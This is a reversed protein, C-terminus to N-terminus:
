TPRATARTVHRTRIVRWTLRMLQWFLCALRWVAYGLFGATLVTVILPLLLLLCAARLSDRAPARRWAYPESALM